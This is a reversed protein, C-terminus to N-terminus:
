RRQCGNKLNYKTQAALNQLLSPLVEPIVYTLLLFFSCHSVSSHSCTLLVVRCVRLDTFFSPFNTTWPSLLSLASIGRCGMSFVMTLSATGRCGMSTWLPASIWRCGMCSGVSSCTSARLLSYGWPSLLGSQLLNAPLVQSGASSGCQLLNMFFQLRHSPSVKSVNMSSQRGHSPGWAPALSSHSSDERSSSPAASVHSSSFVVGM